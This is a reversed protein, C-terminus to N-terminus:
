RGCLDSKGITGILIGFIEAPTVRNQVVVARVTNKGQDGVM